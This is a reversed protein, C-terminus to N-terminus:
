LGHLSLSKQRGGMVGGGKAAQGAPFGQNIGVRFLAVGRSPPIGFTRLFLGWAGPVRPYVPLPYVAEIRGEALFDDIGRLGPASMRAFDAASSCSQLCFKGSYGPDPSDVAGPPQGLHGWSGPSPAAPDRGPLLVPTNERGSPSAPRSGPKPPHQSRQTQHQQPARPPHSSSWCGVALGSM